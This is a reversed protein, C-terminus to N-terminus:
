LGQAKMFNDFANLQEEKSALQLELRSLKARDAENAKELKAIELDIEAILQKTTVTSTQM